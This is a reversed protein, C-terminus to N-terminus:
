ISYLFAFCKYVSPSPVCKGLAVKHQMVQRCGHASHTPSFVGTRRLRTPRSIVEKASPSEWGMSEWGATAGHAGAGSLCRQRGLMSAQLLGEMPGWLAM